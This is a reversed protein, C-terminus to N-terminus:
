LLTTYDKSHLSAIIKAPGQKPSVSTAEPGNESGTSEDLIKTFGLPQQVKDNIFTFIDRVTAEDKERVEGKTLEFNIEVFDM